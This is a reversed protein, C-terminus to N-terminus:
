RTAGVEWYLYDEPRFGYLSITFTLELRSSRSTCAWEADELSVQRNRFVFVSDHERLPTCADAPFGVSVMYRRERLNQDNLPLLENAASQLMQCMRPAVLEPFHHFMLLPLDIEPLSEYRKECYSDLRDMYENLDVLAWQGWTKGEQGKGAALIRVYEEITSPGCRVYLLELQAKNLFPHDAGHIEFEEPIADLEACAKEHAKGVTEDFEVLAVGQEGLEGRLERSLRMILLTHAELLLQPQVTRWYANVSRALEGYASRLQRIRVALERCQESYEGGWHTLKYWWPHRGKLESLVKAHSTGEQVLDGLTKELATFCEQVVSDVAGTANESLLEGLYKKADEARASNPLDGAAALAFWLNLTQVHKLLAVKVCLHTDPWASSQISEELQQLKMAITSLSARAPLDTVPTPSRERMFQSIGNVLRPLQAQLLAGLPLRHQAPALIRANTQGRFYLARDYGQLSTQEKDMFETVRDQFHRAATARRLVDAERHQECAENVKMRFDELLRLLLQADATAPLVTPLSLLGQDVTPMPLDYLAQLVRRASLFQDCEADLEFNETIRQRQTLDKTSRLVHYRHWTEPTFVCRRFSSSCSKHHAGCLREDLLTRAGPTFNTMCFAEILHRPWGPGSEGEKTPPEMVFHVERWQNALADKDGRAAAWCDRVHSEGDQRAPIIVYLRRATDVPFAPIRRCVLDELCQRGQQAGADLIVAIDVNSLARQRVEALIKKGLTGVGQGTPEALVESSSFRLRIQDPLWELAKTSLESAVAEAFTDALPDLPVVLHLLSM